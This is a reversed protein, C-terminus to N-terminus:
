PQQKYIYWAQRAIKWFPMSSLIDRPQKLYIQKWGKSPNHVEEFYLSRISLGKQYLIENMKTELSFGEGSIYYERDNFVSIPLVRAGSFMDHKLLKCIGLSEKWMMMTSDVIGHKVPNILQQIHETTFGIYDADTMFIHTGTAKEIGAFFASLKGSNKKLHIKRLKPTDFADIVQQTNDISGDNVVIVEDIDVCALVTELIRAIRPGENYAPIICSFLMGM